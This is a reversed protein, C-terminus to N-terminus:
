QLVGDIFLYPNDEARALCDACSEKAHLEWIARARNDDLTIQWQCRCNGSCITGEGPYFPLELAEGYQGKVFTSKLAGAYLAARAAAQAETLDEVKGAFGALFDLQTQLAAGLIRDGAPTLGNAGQGSFYAAAHHQIILREFQRQWEAAGLHDLGLMLTAIDDLFATMLNQIVSPM